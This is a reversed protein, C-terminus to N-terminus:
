AQPLCGTVTAVPSGQGHSRDSTQPFPETRWAQSCASRATGQGCPQPFWLCSVGVRLTRSSFRFDSASPGLHARRHEQPPRLPLLFSRPTWSAPLRRSPLESCSALLSGRPLLTSKQAGPHWLHVRPGTFRREFVIEKIKLYSQSLSLLM